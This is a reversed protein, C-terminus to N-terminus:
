ELGNEEVIQHCEACLAMLNSRDNAEEYPLGADLCDSLPRIHHVHLDQEFLVVHEDRSMGCRRCQEGDAQVAVERQETWNPGYYLKEGHKYRPHNEGSWDRRELEAADIAAIWSGFQRAITTVGLKADMERWETVSPTQGLEDAAAQLEAIIEEASVSSRLNIEFGAERLAENWSDFECLYPWTSPYTPYEELDDYQPTRGLEDALERLQDILYDRDVRARFNVPLGAARLADTFSGFAREYATTSFTDDRDSIEQYRPPRGLEAALTTLEDILEDDSIRHQQTPELGAARLADNWSGFINQYPSLSPTEDDDALDAQTPVTGLRHHLDQLKEILYTDDYGKQENVKLGCRELTENWSGFRRTYTNLGVTYESDDNVESATPPRGLHDAFKHVSEVLEQTSYPNRM